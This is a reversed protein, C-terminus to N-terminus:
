VLLDVAPSFGILRFYICELPSTCHHVRVHSTDTCAFQAKGAHLRLRFASASVCHRTFRNFVSIFAVLGSYSLAFPRDFDQGVPSPVIPRFGPGPPPHLTFVQAERPCGTSLGALLLAKSSPLLSACLAGWGCALHRTAYQHGTPALLPNLGREPVVCAASRLPRALYMAVPLHVLALSVIPLPSVRVRGFLSHCQTPPPPKSACWPHTTIVM